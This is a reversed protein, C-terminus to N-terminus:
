RLFTQKGPVKFFMFLHCNQHFTPSKEWGISSRWSNFACVKFVGKDCVSNVSLSIISSFSEVKVCWRNKLVNKQKYKSLLFYTVNYVVSMREGRKARFPIRSGGLTWVWLLLCSVILLLLLSLSGINSYLWTCKRLSQVWTCNQPIQFKSSYKWKKRM